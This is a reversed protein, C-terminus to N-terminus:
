GSGGPRHVMWRAFDGFTTFARDPRCDLLDREHFTGWLAAVALVPFRSAKAAVMDHVNDGVYVGTSNADGYREMARDIGDPFPKSRPVEDGWIFFDMEQSWAAELVPAARDSPRTTVVGMARVTQRIRPLFEEVQAYPRSLRNHHRLYFRSFETYMRDVIASDRRGAQRAFHDFFERAFRGWLPLLDQKSVSCGLHRQVIPPVGEFYLPSTDILTGDLDLMVVTRSM